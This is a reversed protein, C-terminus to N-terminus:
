IRWALYHGPHYTFHNRNVNISGGEELMHLRLEGRLYSSETMTVVAWPPALMSSPGSSVQLHGSHGGGCGLPAAVCIGAM